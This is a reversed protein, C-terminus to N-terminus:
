RQGVLLAFGRWRWQCDVDTFGAGRMWDLQDEPTALVDEPDGGPRGIRLRIGHTADIKTKMSAEEVRNWPM